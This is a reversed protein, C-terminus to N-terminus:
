DAWENRKLWAACRDDWSTVPVNEVDRLGYGHGGTDYLHLEATVGQKKLALTLFLSSEPTVRDDWAHVLFFPPSDKTVVVDDQLGSGEINTLYAPYILIGANATCSADDVADVPDYMRKDALATRAATDGGASFGLVAVQDPNLKWQTARSRVISISRQADQVPALWKANEQSAPVRYKVVVASVGLSNLWEAVETGELDWALISYGGGPCIVVTAGSRHEAPALYVHAQPVSVNGIRSVRRGAVTRDTVKTMDAEAGINREPGPPRDPWLNIIEDADRALAPSAFVCVLATSLVAASFRNM